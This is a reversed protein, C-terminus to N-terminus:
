LFNLLVLIFQFYFIRFVKQLTPTFRERQYANGIQRLVDSQTPYPHIVQALHGVKMKKQVAVVLEGIMEGAHRAVITGGVIQGSRRQFFIKAFGNKEDDLVARDIHEFDMSIEDIGPDSQAERSDVGVHAVEPDTFTCWPIALDSMKKRGFFLANQLVIRAMSDAMHTFKYKSCIDGAAYISRNTTQLRDNVNVGHADYEVGAKELDLSEVNPTRGLALLLEDGVLYLGQGDVEVEIIKETGDNRCKQIKAHFLIEVGEKVLQNRVLESAKPDEKSLVRSGHTILTVQSGLRQFAQAMECGIPGGGIVLLREPKETLEFVNENTLYHIQDMGPVSLIAARAGTAIVAKSFRLSKGDVTVADPGTFRANGLYVDVGLEKFRDASDVPSLSTRLRRMREMVKPFLAQPALGGALGLEVAMKIDAMARSSRIIAKSPVCGVILCDGGMLHREILAVKGGLGAAGAATVLGATGAGIAVLNYKGNPIPNVWDPPHTNAVLERNHVDEPLILPASEPKRREPQV